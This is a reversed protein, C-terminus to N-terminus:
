SPTDENFNTEKILNQFDDSALRKFVSEEGNKEFSITQIKTDKADILQYTDNDIYITNDDILCPKIILSETDKYLVVYKEDIIEFSTTNKYQQLLFMYLYFGYSFVLICILLIGIFKLLAPNKDINEKNKKRKCFRCKKSNVKKKRNSQRKTPHDKKTQDNKPAKESTKAISPSIARGVGFLMFTFIASSVLLLIKMEKNHHIALLAVTFTGTDAKSMLYLCLITDIIIFIFAFVSIVFIAKKFKVCVKRVTSIEINKYIIYIVYSIFLTIIAIVIMTVLNYIFSNDKPHMFELPISWFNLYAAEVWYRMFGAFALFSASLTSTVTFVSNWNIDKKATDKINETTSETNCM